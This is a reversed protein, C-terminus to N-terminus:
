PVVQKWFSLRKIPPPPPTHFFIWLTFITLNVTNKWLKSSLKHFTAAKRKLKTCKLDPRTAKVAFSFFNGCLCMLLEIILFHWNSVGTDWIPCVFEPVWFLKTSKFNWAEIKLEINLQNVSHLCSWAPIM